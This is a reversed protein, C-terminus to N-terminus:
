GDTSAGGISVVCRVRSIVMVPGTGTVGAGIADPVEVLLVEGAIVIPPSFISCDDM